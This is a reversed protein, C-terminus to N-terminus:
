YVERGGNIVIMQGSIFHADDSFLFAVVGTIRALSKAGPRALGSSIRPSFNVM